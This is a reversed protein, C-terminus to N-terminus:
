CVAIRFVVCRIVLAFVLCWAVVFVLFVLLVACRVNFLVCCVTFLLCVFFLSCRCAFLSCCVSGVSSLCCM